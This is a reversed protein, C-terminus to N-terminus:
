GSIGCIRWNGPYVLFARGISGRFHIEKHFNRYENTNDKICFMLTIDASLSLMLDPISRSQFVFFFLYRFTGADRESHLYVSDFRRGEAQLASARALQAIGGNAVAFIYQNEDVAFYEESFNYIKQRM